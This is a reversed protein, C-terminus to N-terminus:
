GAFNLLDWKFVLLRQLFGSLNKSHDAQSSSSCVLANNEHFDFAFQKIQNLIFLSNM